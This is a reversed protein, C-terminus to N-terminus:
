RKGKDDLSKQYDKSLDMLFHLMKEGYEKIAENKIKSLNKEIVFDEREKNFIPLNNERKYKAVSVAIDMREEFLEILKDDIEDIRKRCENIDKIM